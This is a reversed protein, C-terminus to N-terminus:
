RSQWQVGGSRAYLALTTRRTKLDHHWFAPISEGQPSASPLAATTNVTRFGFASFLWAACCHINSHDWPTVPQFNQMVIPRANWEAARPSARGTPHIRVTVETRTIGRTEWFGAVERVVARDVRWARTRNSADSLAVPIMVVALVLAAGEVAFRRGVSELAHLLPLAGLLAALLIVAAVRPGTPTVNLPLIISAAILPLVVPAMTAAAVRSRSLQRWSLAATILALGLFPWAWARWSVDIGLYFSLLPQTITGINDTMGQLALRVRAVDFAVGRDGWTQIGALRAVITAGLYLGVAAASLLLRRVVTRHSLHDLYAETFILAPVIGVHVQYGSIGLAIAFVAASTWAYGERSLWGYGLVILFLSLAYVGTVHWAIFTNWIPHLLMLLPLATSTHFGAGWRLLTAQVAFALAASYLSAIIKPADGLLYSPGFVTQWFLLEFYNLFRYSELHGQPPHVLDDAYVAGAVLPSLRPLLAAAFFIALWVLRRNSATAPQLGLSRIAARDTPRTIM